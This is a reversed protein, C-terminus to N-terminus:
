MLCLRTFRNLAEKVRLAAAGEEEAEEAEEAEEEEEGEAEAKSDSCAAAPTRLPTKRKRSADFAPPTPILRM